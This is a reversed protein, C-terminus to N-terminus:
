FSKGAEIEVSFTKSTESDTENLNFPNKVFRSCPNNRTPIITRSATPKRADIITISAIGIEIKIPM